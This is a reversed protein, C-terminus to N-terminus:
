SLSFVGTIYYLCHLQQSVSFRPTLQVIRPIALSIMPPKLLSVPTGRAGGIYVLAVCNAVWAELINVLTQM